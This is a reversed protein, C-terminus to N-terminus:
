NDEPLPSPDVVAFHEVQMSEPHDDMDSFTKGPAKTFQHKTSFSDLIGSFM